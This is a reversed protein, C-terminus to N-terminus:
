FMAFVVIYIVKGGILISYCIYEQWIKWVLTELFTDFFDLTLKANDYFCLTFM